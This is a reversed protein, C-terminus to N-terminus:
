VSRSYKDVYGGIAMMDEFFNISDTSSFLRFGLFAYSGYPGYTEICRKVETEVEDPTASSLGPRGNSDYGGVAAIDSGHRRLVDAIDNMPQASTWACAGEEIFDFILSECLGCTHQFAVIGLQRLADNFRKHEPKILSRYTEPSIFLSSETAVDDFCTVIDPKFYHHVRELQRIKYDTIAELLGRCAEPELAMAVMAGEFGMLHTLRLFQGNWMGYEVAKQARDVGALQREAQAAWDYADLDPFVVVDEWDEIEELVHVGPKPVPQGGTSATPHWEVGWGDLGGGFPGNEFDEFPGGAPAVDSMANPVWEPKKHEVVATWFNERATVMGMSGTLREERLVGLTHAYLM